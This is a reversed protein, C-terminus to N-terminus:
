VFMLTVYGFVFRPKIDLANPVGGAGLKFMYCVCVCLQMAWFYCFFFINSIESGGFIQVRRQLRGFYRYRLGGM